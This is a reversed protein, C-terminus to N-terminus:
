ENNIEDKIEKYPINEKIVKGKSNILYYKGKKQAYFENVEKGEYELEFWDLYIKDYEIPLIAEKSANLLGFKGNVFVKIYKGLLIFDDYIPELLIEGKRSILGKKNNITIFHAKPGYEVWNSIEDYKLDIIVKQEKNIVGFKNDIKVIVKNNEDYYCPELYEYITPIIETGNKDIIGYKENKNIILYNFWRGSNISKLNIPIIIENKSNIVGYKGNKKVIAIENGEFSTIEDYEFPIIINGKSDISGFKNQSNNIIFHSTNISDKKIYDWDISKNDVKLLEKGKVDFLGYKSKKKLIFVDNENSYRKPLEVLDYSTPIVENGFEDIVGFHRNKKVIALRNKNYPNAEKYRGFPIKVKFDNDLYAFKKNKQVLILGNSLMTYYRDKIESEYVKDYIFDTFQIGKNNFFSWKFKEDDSGFPIPTKSKSPQRIGVIVFNDVKNYDAKDYIIPIVVKGKKDIFGVKDGKWVRSLGCSYFYGVGNYLFDIIIKGNRDIFGSKGNKKVPALGESFVGIDDYEFPILINEKIDIYGQKDGKHALIMNKDDIPNLFKYKGVQIITDGKENLYCWKDNKLVRRFTEKKKTKQNENQATSNCSVLSIFLIYYAIKKIM